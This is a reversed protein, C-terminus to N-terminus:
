LPLWSLAHEGLEAVLMEHIREMGEMGELIMALDRFRAVVKLQDSLRGEVDMLFRGKYVDQALWVVAQQREKEAAGPKPQEISTHVDEPKQCLNMWLNWIRLADEDSKGAQERSMGMVASAMQNMKLSSIRPKVEPLQLSRFSPLQNPSSPEIANTNTQLKRYPLQPDLGPTYSEMDPEIQKTTVYRSPDALNRNELLTSLATSPKHEKYCTAIASSMSPDEALDATRDREINDPKGPPFTGSPKVWRQTKGLM